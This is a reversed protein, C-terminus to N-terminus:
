VKEKFEIQAPGLEVWIYKSFFTAKTFRKKLKM